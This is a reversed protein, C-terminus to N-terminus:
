RTLYNRQEVTTLTTVPALPEGSRPWHAYERNVGCPCCTIRSVAYRGEHNPLTLTVISQLLRIHAHSTNCSLPM